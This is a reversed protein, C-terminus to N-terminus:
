IWSHAKFNLYSWGFNALSHLTGIESFPLLCVMYSLYRIWSPILDCFHTYKSLHDVVVMIISKNGVKPLGMIFDMSIHTCIHTPIPLPQLVRPIKVTEGKKIQFSDYSAVFYQIDNKM